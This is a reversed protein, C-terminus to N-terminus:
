NRRSYDDMFSVFYHNGGFSANKFPDWVNTHVYDLIGKTYHITIGFKVNTKKGLVSHECFKLKYTKAGKLLGQKALAQMSKEGAQDLRIHRLRTADEDSDVAAALAGTVTSGKLYYLNSDRVGKMVVMSGKMVNFVGNELTVKLRKSEMAGVSIINKKMQPSYRVKILDWVMSDFMKIRITGIGNLQCAEDDGM